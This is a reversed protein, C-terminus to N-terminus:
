GEGADGADSGADAGRCTCRLKESDGTCVQQQNDPCVPSSKLDEEGCAAAGGSGAFVLALVGLKRLKM